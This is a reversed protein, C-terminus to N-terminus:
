PRAAIPRFYDITRRLGDDLAITPSWGLEARALGIDPQRQVPDDEPLPEHVVTSSSGALAVVKRALHVYRFEEIPHRELPLTSRYERLMRRMWEEVQEGTGPELGLDEIAM